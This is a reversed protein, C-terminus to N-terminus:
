SHIYTNMSPYIDSQLGSMALCWSLVALHLSITPSTCVPHSDLLSVQYCWLWLSVAVWVVCTQSGAIHPGPPQSDLLSAQYHWLWGTEVYGTSISYSVWCFSPWSCHEVMASEFGWSDCIRHYHWEWQCKWWLYFCAWEQRFKGSSNWYKVM